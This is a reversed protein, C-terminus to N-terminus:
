RSADEDGVSAELSYSLGTDTDDKPPNVWIVRVNNRDAGREVQYMYMAARSPQGSKATATDNSPATTACGSLALAFQIALASLELKQKLGFM